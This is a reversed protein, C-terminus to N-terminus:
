SVTCCEAPEAGALPAWRKSDYSEGEGLLILPREAVMAAHVRRQHDSELKTGLCYISHVAPLDAPPKSAGRPDPAGGAARSGLADSSLARQVKPAATGKRAWTHPMRIAAHLLEENRKDAGPVPEFLSTQHNNYLLCGLFSSPAERLKKNAEWTLYPGNCMLKGWVETGDAACQVIDVEYMEDVDPKGESM